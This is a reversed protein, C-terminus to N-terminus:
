TRLFSRIHVALVAAPPLAAAVFGDRPALLGAALAALIYFALMAGLLVPSSRRRGPVPPPIKAVASIIGTTLTGTIFTTVVGSVKLQRVAVSQIGLAFAASATIALKTWYPTPRASFIWLLSSVIMFPLELALGFQLDRKWESGSLLRVLLMSAILAGAAFGGIAVSSPILKSRDLGAIGLGFVVTNGTMNATFVGSRLYSLGDMMGAAWTLLLLDLWLNRPPSEPPEAEARRPPVIEM